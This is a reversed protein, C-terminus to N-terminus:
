KTTEKYKNKAVWQIFDIWEVNDKILDRVDIASDLINAEKSITFYEDSIDFDDCNRLIDSSAWDKLVLNISDMQYILPYDSDYAFENYLALVKNDSMRELRIAVKEEVTLNSEVKAIIQSIAEKTEGEALVGALRLYHVM